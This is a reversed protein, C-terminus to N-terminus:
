DRSETADQEKQRHHMVIGDLHDLEHQFCRAELGVMDDEVWEGDHTQYRVSITDPRKITCEEGPFSLCGEPFESLVTSSFTIEPNFCARERGHVSMVFARKSIGIQPAALGIGQNIHMFKLMTTALTLNQHPWRFDVPKAKKYLVRKTFDM